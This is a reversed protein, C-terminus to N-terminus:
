WNSFLKNFIDDTLARIIEDAMQSEAQQLSLTSKFEFNRTIDYEETKEDKQKNLVLHVTINLRNTAEQQQSVGSTTVFYNTVTGSVVWDANDNNTHTLKTQNIIKRRVRDTLTPSLQPNVYTAKNEFFNVKITKISDPISADNFRYVGCGSNSIGVLALVITLFFLPSLLAIRNTKKGIINKNLINNLLTM